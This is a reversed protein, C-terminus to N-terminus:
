HRGLVDIMEGSAIEKLSWNHWALGRIWEDRSVGQTLAYVPSHPDDTQVLLGAIAADVLATTRRGIAIEHADLDERLTREPTSQSPHWRVTMDDALISGWKDGYDCLYIKRNGQKMPMLDPHPRVYRPKERVKEGDYLWHVSICEPDGWYARDIYLTVDNRWQELAFWPGLIVHVDAPTNPSFSIEARVGHSAYGANLANAIDVQHKLNKNCHIVTRGQGM